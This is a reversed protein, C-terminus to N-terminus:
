ESAWPPRQMPSDEHLTTLDQHPSVSPQYIYRARKPWEYVRVEPGYVGTHAVALRSSSEDLCLCTPHLIGDDLTLIDYTSRSDRGAGTMVVKNSATDTVLLRGDGASVMHLPQQLFEGKGMGYTRRVSGKKNVWHIKGPSSADLVTYAGDDTPLARVMCKTATQVPITQREKGEYDCIAINKRSYDAIVLREIAPVAAIGRPVFDLKAERRELLANIKTNIDIFHLKRNEDTLVVTITDPKGELLAMGMARLGPVRYTAHTGEVKNYIWVSSKQMNVMCILDGTLAMGAVMTSGETEMEQMYEPKGLIVRLKSLWPSVDIILAAPDDSFCLFCM